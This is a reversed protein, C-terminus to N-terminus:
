REEGLVHELIEAAAHRFTHYRHVYEYGNQAIRKREDNHELYHRMLEKCESVDHFWVLHEHNRFFEELNAIYRTLLFGGCGLTLWTRNSFYLDLDSWYDIGLLIKTSSCIKRYVPLHVHEQRVHEALHSQWHRGYISLPFESAVGRLLELRADVGHCKGIFAVEGAWQSDPEVRHHEVPDCGTRLYHVGQIGEQEFRTTWGRATTFFHTAHRGLELVRADPADGADEYFVVRPIGDPISRM